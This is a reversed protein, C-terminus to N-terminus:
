LSKRLTVRCPNEIHSKKHQLILEAMTKGMLSFDTSITTIGEAIVSKLPTENYSIVGANEGLRLGRKKMLHILAVLDNDHLVIFATGEVIKNEVIKTIIECNTGTKKCFKTFGARIGTAIHKSDMVLTLRQYKELLQRQGFLSLYIDKEFNQCVSPYKKGFEEYGLDLIYLKGQPLANLIHVARPHPPPVIVFYNYYLMYEKVLSELVNINFHHFYIDVKAHGRMNAIFNNYIIEKYPAFGDLLLMINEKRKTATSVVFYGKGPWADIIGSAKMIGYAKFVSGRALSFQAAIENVSPLMSGEKLRGEEIAQYIGSIIQQYIPEKAKTNVKLYEADM